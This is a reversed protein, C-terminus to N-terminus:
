RRRVPRRVPRPVPRAPRYNRYHRYHHTHIGTRYYNDYYGAHDYTDSSRTTSSGCASLLGAIFCLGLLGIFDRVINRAAKRSRHTM